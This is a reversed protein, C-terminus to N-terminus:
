GVLERRFLELTRVFADRTANVDYSPRMDNFFAHHVGDYVVSEFRKGLAKMGQEYVPLQAIIRADLTGAFSLVPCAIKTMLEVSPAAGYFSVAAALTPDNAALQSVLGGGMCFGVAAVKAGRTIECETRLWATAKLLRPVFSSLTTVASMIAAMTKEIREREAASRQALASARAAADTFLIPSQNLLAQTEALRDAAFDAAREGANAYLDPALAAYGAGAFRRTVDEIHADVGWAEQLILV